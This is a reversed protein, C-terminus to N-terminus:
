TDLSQESGELAPRADCLMHSLHYLSLLFLPSYLLCVKIVLFCLFQLVMNPHKVCVLQLYLQVCVSCSYQAFIDLSWQTRIMCKCYVTFSKHKPDEYSNLGQASKCKGFFFFFFWQSPCHHLSSHFRSCVCVHFLSNDVVHM